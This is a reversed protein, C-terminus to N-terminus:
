IVPVECPQQQPVPQIHWEEPAHIEIQIVRPGVLIDKLISGACSALVLASAILLAEVFMAAYASM